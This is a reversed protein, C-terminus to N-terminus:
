RDTWRDIQYIPRRTTSRASSRSRLPASPVTSQSVTPEFQEISEISFQKDLNLLVFLECLEFESIQARHPYLSLCLYM